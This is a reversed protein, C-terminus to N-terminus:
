KEIPYSLLTKCSIRHTVLGMLLKGEDHSPALYAFGQNIYRVESMIGDIVFKQGIEIKLSM